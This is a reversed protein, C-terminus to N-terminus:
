AGASLAIVMFGLLFGLGPLASSLLTWALHGSAIVAFSAM